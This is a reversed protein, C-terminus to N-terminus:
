YNFWRDIVVLIFDPFAEFTYHLRCLAGDCDHDSESGCQVSAHLRNGERYYSWEGSNVYGSLKGGALEIHRVSRGVDLGCEDRMVSWVSRPASSSRWYVLVETSSDLSEQRYMSNM